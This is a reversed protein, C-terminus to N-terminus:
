RAWRGALDNDIDLLDLVRGIHDNVLDDITEPKHYFAPVPPFVIGGMESIAVMNKLHVLHLPTERPMIILRRREKLTVDAARAILGAGTGNAIEGLTKMSCPAIVMGITKFSGSAIPAAIDQNPYVVDALASLDARSLGTELSRTLQSAKSIILHTDIPKSKLAELLRIGYIIGSAGSIGVILRPKNM